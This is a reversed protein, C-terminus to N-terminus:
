LLTVYKFLFVHILWSVPIFHTVCYTTSFVSHFFSQIHLATHSYLLSLASFVEAATLFTFYPTACHINSQTHHGYALQPPDWLRSSCQSLTNMLVTLSCDMQVNGWQTLQGSLTKTASIYPQYHINIHPINTWLGFHLLLEFHKAINALHTHSSAPIDSTADLFCM